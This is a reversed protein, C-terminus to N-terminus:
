HYSFFLLYGNIRICINSLSHSHIHYYTLPLSHIHHLSFSLLPPPSSFPLTFLISHHSSSYLSSLPSLFLHDQHYFYRYGTPQSLTLFSYSSNTTTTYLPASTHIPKTASSTSSLFFSTFSISPKTFPRSIRTSYSFFFSGSHASTPTEKTRGCQRHNSVVWKRM